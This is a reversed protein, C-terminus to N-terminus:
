LSEVNNWIKQMEEWSERLGKLEEEFNELKEPNGPELNLLEKSKCCKIYDEM